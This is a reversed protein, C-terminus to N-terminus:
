KSDTYSTNANQKEEKTLPLEIWFSSGIGPESDVGITGGMLEILQKSIALGLGTGGFRRTSSTDVQSFSQFLRQQDARTIGPGTDTVEIRVRVPETDKEIRLCNVSVTGVDTFKIANAVLNLLVQRLRVPDGHVTDPFDSCTHTQVQLGKKHAGPRILALVEAVVTPLEYNVPHLEIKGAELKSFDLIDDIIVLLSEASQHLTAVYDKQEADLDTYELLDAMGLVGNMPTRIEHSMNALFESKARNATDAADRASEADLVSQALQQNTEELNKQNRKRETIDTYVVLVEHQDGSLAPIARRVTRLWVPQDGLVISEDYIFTEDPSALVRAHKQNIQEITAPDRIFDTFHTGIIENLRLGYFDAFALNALTYIGDADVVIVSSPSADIISQLYDRQRRRARNATALAVELHHNTEELRGNTAELREQAQHSESVDRLFISLGDESPVIHIEVWIGLVKSFTTLQVERGERDAIHCSEYFVSAVSEPLEEWINRHLLLEKGCGLMADAPPNIYVIHWAKDLIIFGGSMIGFVTSLRKDLEDGRQKALVREKLHLLTTDDQHLHSDNGEVEENRSSLPAPRDAPKM